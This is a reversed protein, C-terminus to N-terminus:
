AGSTGQLTDKRGNAPVTNSWHKSFYYYYYFFLLLKVYAARELKLIGRATERHCGSGKNM